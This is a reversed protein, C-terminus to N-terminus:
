RYSVQIIKKTMSPSEGGILYSSQGSAVVASDALPKSLRGAPRVTATRPDFWWMRDIPTNVDTRGGILLIRNGLPIASAHGIATPLQGVVKAQGTRPDIRQIATQMTSNVEGGFLWIAGGSVTSAPYRVAVPLKGIVKWHQGDSSSLITREAPRTGNYGGLVVVRGAVTAAVLDSRTQPLHGIVHWSNGNWEQVVSQESANGGGVVIPMGNVLGGATDHVAVPMSPLRTVRGQGLDVRYATSLTSQGNDLGGAVIAYSGTGIVAERSLGVPLRFGVRHLRLKRPASSTPAPSTPPTSASSSTPTTKAKGPPASHPAQSCGALALVAVGAVVARRM